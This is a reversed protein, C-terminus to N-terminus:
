KLIGKILKELNECGVNDIRTFERLIHDVEYLIITANGDGAVEIKRGQNNKMYNKLKEVKILWVTWNEQDKLLTAWIDATTINIGKPEKTIPNEIEIAMNNTKSALYDLKIEVTFKKRGAKCSLDYFARTAPDKNPETEINALKFYNSVLKEGFGGIKNCKQFNSM